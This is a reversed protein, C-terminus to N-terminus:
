IELCLDLLFIICCITARKLKCGDIYVVSVSLILFSFFYDILHYLFYRLAINNIYYFSFKYVSCIDKIVIRNLCYWIGFVAYQLKGIFIENAIVYYEYLHINQILDYGFLSTFDVFDRTVYQQVFLFGCEGYYLVQKPNYM